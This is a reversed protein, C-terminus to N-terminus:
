IRIYFNEINLKFYYIIGIVIVECLELIINVIVYEVFYMIGVFRENYFIVYCGYIICNINFDLFFLELGDKYCLVGSLMM